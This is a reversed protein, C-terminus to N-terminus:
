GEGLGLRVASRVRQNPNPSLTPSLNPNPKPNPNPNPRLLQLVQANLCFLLPVVIPEAGELFAPTGLAADRSFTHGAQLRITM